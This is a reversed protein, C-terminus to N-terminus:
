HQTATVIATGSASSFGGVRIRYTTGSSVPFVIRSYLSSFTCSAGADDNCIIETGGAGPCNTFAELATDFTTGADCTTIEASDGSADATYSMWVDKGGAACLWAPPSTLACVNSVTLPTGNVLTLENLECSDGLCPPPPPPPTFCYKRTVQYRRYRVLPRVDIYRRTTVGAGSTISDGKFITAVLNWKPDSGYDADFDANTSDTSWIRLSDSLDDDATWYLAVSTHPAGVGAYYVRLDTVADCPVGCPTCNVSLSYQKVGCIGAFVGPAAIITYTGPGLCVSSMSFPECATLAQGFVLVTPGTICDGEAIWINFPATEAAVTVSLSESDAVTVQYWDTDRTDGLPSTYTTYNGCIVSNCDILQFVPTLDNCGGNPDNDSFLPDNFDETVEPTGACTVQCPTCPACNVTLWYDACASPFNSGTIVVLYTGPELCGTTLTLTSCALATASALVSGPCGGCSTDIVLVAYDREGQATITLIQGPAAVAVNYWDLDRITDNAVYTGCYTQGCNLTQSLFPTYNCGGNVVDVTPDCVENEVLSGGPCSVSCPVCQSVQLTYPSLAGGFFEEVSLFYTGQTLTFCRIESLNFGDCDSGDQDILSTGCCTTSLRIWSDWTSPLTPCLSFTWDGDSPISIQWTEDPGTTLNCTSTTAAGPSNQTFPATATFLPTCSACETVECHMAGTVGNTFPEFDVYYTGQTLPVCVFTPDDFGTTNDQCGDDNTLITTGGCCATTLYGYADWAIGDPQCFAITWNGDHPINIQISLDEGARLTCDDGAGATNGDATGPANIVFDVCNRVRVTMSCSDNSRDLDSALDTWVQLSYDGVVGPLTIQTTFTHVENTSPALSATAETVVAGGNFRYKVPSSETSISSNSATFTVPVVSGPLYNTTAPSSIGACRFDHLLGPPRHYWVARGGALGGTANCTYTLNNGAVNSDQIGVTASTTALSLDKYEVKIKGNNYLEVQMSLAGTGSFPGISDWEVIFRNGDTKYHVKNDGTTSGNRALHLDDWFPFVARSQTGNPLPCVNSFTTSNTVFQLMGNTMIRVNSYSGNYFSFAFPLAIQATSGDDLSSFASGLLHTAAGDNRLEDWVYTATDAGRNDVWRYGFADPGGVDDLPNREGSESGSGLLEEILRADAATKTGTALWNEYARLAEEKANAQLTAPDVGNILARRALRASIEDANEARTGTLNSSTAPESLTRVPLKAEGTSQVVKAPTGSTNATLVLAGLGCCLLGLCVYWLLKKTM